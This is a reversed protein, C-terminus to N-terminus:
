FGRYFKKSSAPRFIFDPDDYTRPRPAEAEVPPPPAEEVKEAPGLMCDFYVYPTAKVKPNDWEIQATQKADYKVPSGTAAVAPITQGRHYEISGSLLKIVGTDGVKLHPINYTGFVNGEELSLFRVRDGVAYKCFLKLGM